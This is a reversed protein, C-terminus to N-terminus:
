KERRWEVTVTARNWQARQFGNHGRIIVSFAEPFPGGVGGKKVQDSVFGENNSGFYSFFVWPLLWIPLSSRRVSFFTGIKFSTACKFKYEFLTIATLYVPYINKQCQLCSSLCGRICWPWLHEWSAGVILFFWLVLIISKQCPCESM